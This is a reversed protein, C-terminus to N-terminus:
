DNLLYYLNKSRINTFKHISFDKRIKSSLFIKKTILSYLTKENIPLKIKLIKDFFYILSKIIFPSVNFILYKKKQKKQLISVLDKYKIYNSINYIQNNLNSKNLIKNIAIILDNAFIYSFISEKNKIYFFLGRKLYHNLKKLSTNRMNNGMVQSPRLIILKIKKDKFKQILIDEGILKSKSYFTVPNPKTNESIKDSELSGYVGCTSLHIFIKKKKYNIIQDSIVKMLDINIYQMKSENSNEGICNIIVNANKIYKKHKISFKKYNTKFINKKQNNQHSFGIVNYSNKLKEFFVNGLLGGAGLILINQKKM